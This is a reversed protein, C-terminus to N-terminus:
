SFALPKVSVLLFSNLENNGKLSPLNVHIVYKAPLSPDPNPEVSLKPSKSEGSSDIDFQLITDIGQASDAQLFQDYTFDPNILPMLIM